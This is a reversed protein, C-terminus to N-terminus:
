LPSCRTQVIIVLEGGTTRHLPWDSVAEPKLIRKRDPPMNPVGGSTM